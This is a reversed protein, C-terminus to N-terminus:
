ILNEQRLNIKLKKIFEEYNNIDLLFGGFNDFSSYYILNNDFLKKLINNILKKNEDKNTRIIGRYFNNVKYLLVIVKGDIINEKILLNLLLSLFYGNGYNKEITIIKLGNEDKIQINNNIIDYLLKSFQLRLNNESKRLIDVNYKKIFYLIGDRKNNEILGEIDYLLELLDGIEESKNIKYIEGILDDTRQLNYKLKSKIISSVLKKIDEESLDRYFIGAVGEDKINLEKVLELAKEDSGTINPIYFNFPSSLVKYLPKTFISPLNIGTYKSLIERDVLENLIENNPKNFDYLNGVLSLYLINKDYPNLSQYLYYLVNSTSIDKYGDLNFINPNLNVVNNLEIDKITLFHHDIVYIKKNLDKALKILDDSFISGIDLFIINDYEYGSEGLFLNNIEKKGIYDLFTLHVESNKEYLYKLLFISSSLGDPNLSSIILFNQKNEVAKNIRNSIEEIYSLFRNNM